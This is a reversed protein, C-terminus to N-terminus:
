LLNVNRDLFERLDIEETQENARSAVTQLFHFAVATRFDADASLSAHLLSFSFRVLESVVGLFIQM